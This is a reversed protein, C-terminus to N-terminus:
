RAVGQWAWVALIKVWGLFPVRWVAKGIVREEPINREFSGIDCNHDGKTTFVKGQSTQKIDVIRHIIPDPRRPVLYVLVDGKQASEASALVMIDGMNFGNVFDFERFDDRSININEYYEGQVLKGSCRANCCMGKSWFEDFSGEHEMSGSVVAVIPAPTGLVLGLGPYLLYKIIVFAILVNAIWSYISDEEWLFLWVKKLTKRM